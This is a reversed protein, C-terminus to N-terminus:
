SILLLRFLGYWIHSGIIIVGNRSFFNQKGGNLLVQIFLALAFLSANKLFQTLYGRISMNKNYVYLANSRLAGM